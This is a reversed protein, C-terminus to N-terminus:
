VIVIRDSQGNFLYYVQSYQSDKGLKGNEMKRIQNYKFSAIGPLAKSIVHDEIDYSDTEDMNM